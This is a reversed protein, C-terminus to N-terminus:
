ARLGQYGEEGHQTLDLGENEDNASIRLGVTAKIAFLILASMVASLGIAVGVALLQGLIVSHRGDGIMAYLDPNMAKLGPNADRAFFLGTALTGWIGAVGHIGFVDLSDDYDLANKLTSCALYCLGGAIAGIALAATPTVFGCAPTIAVLGAVAGSIAGLVTPKGRLIWEAAPWAITAASAALHTNIAALSALGGCSLASAANFGFWGVWLLCAGTFAMTLNHPPMPEEGYRRRKGLILACVLGAVGSATEVVTGGAFDFAAFRTAGAAWNFLGGVGWAMHALPIYVLFLWALSFLAMARFSMREAYAGCIVAPTIVAFMMQFLCFTAFPISAAYASNPGPISGAESATPRTWAVGELFLWDFGGIWWRSGGGFALGFGCVAWAVSVLATIALSQMMTGLVNRRRVLGGYFLALGPITMLLVLMAGLLVWANDGSNFATSDVSAKAASATAEVSALRQELAAVQASLDAEAAVIPTGTMLLLVLLLARM